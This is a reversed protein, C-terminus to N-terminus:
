ADILGKGDDNDRYGIDMGVASKLRRVSINHMHVSGDDNYFKVRRYQSWPIAIVEGVGWSVNYKYLVESGVDLKLNRAM